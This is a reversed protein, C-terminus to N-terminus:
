QLTLGGEKYVDLFKIVANRIYEIGGTFDEVPRHIEINSIYKEKRRVAQKAAAIVVKLDAQFDDLSGYNDAFLKLTYADPDPTNIVTQVIELMRVTAKGNILLRVDALEPNRSTLRSPRM